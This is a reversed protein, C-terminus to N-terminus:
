PVPLDLDTYNRRSSSVWSALLRKIKAMLIWSYFTGYILILVQKNNFISIFYYPIVLVWLQNATSTVLWGCERTIVMIVM